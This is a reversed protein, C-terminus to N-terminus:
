PYPINPVELKSISSSLLDGSGTEITWEIAGDNDMNLASMKGDLTSVLM